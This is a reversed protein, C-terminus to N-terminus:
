SSVDPWLPAAELKLPAAELKLPAAELKLPFAELKLSAAEPPEVSPEIFDGGLRRGENLASNKYKVKM